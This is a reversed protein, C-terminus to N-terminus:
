GNDQGKLEREVIVALQVAKLITCRYCGGFDDRKYRANGSPNTDRCSVKDHHPAIKNVYEIAENM